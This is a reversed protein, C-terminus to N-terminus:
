ELYSFSINIILLDSNLSRSYATKSIVNGGAAADAAKLVSLIEGNDFLKKVAIDYEEKSTFKVEANAIGAEASRKASSTLMEIGSEASYASLHEKNFYSESTSNCEPSSIIEESLTHTLGIIDSDPVLFFDYRVYTDKRISEARIVPDDWTADLNYWRGGCKVKNWTHAIGNSEGDAITNEIGARNCLWRITKAYGGCRLAKGVLGGYVTGTTADETDSFDVNLVLFDHFLKLKEYDSSLTQAKALVDAAAAEIEESMKQCEEPTFDYHLYLENVIKEPDSPRLKSSLWFIDAEMRFVAIYAKRCTAWSVPVPLIVREEHNAAADAIATYIQQETETLNDFAYSKYPSEETDAYSSATQVETEAPTTIVEPVDEKDSCASLLLVCATLLPLLSNRKKLSEREM